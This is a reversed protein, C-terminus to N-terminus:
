RNSRATTQPLTRIRDAFEAICALEIQQVALQREWLEQDVLGSVAEEVRRRLEAVPAADNRFRNPRFAGVTSSSANGATRRKSRKHRYSSSRSIKATSRWACWQSTKEALMNRGITFTRSL